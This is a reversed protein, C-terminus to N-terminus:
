HDTLPGDTPMHQRSIRVAAVATRHACILCTPAPPRPPSLLRRPLEAELAAVLFGEKGGRGASWSRCSLPQRQGGEHLCVRFPPSGCRTVCMRASSCRCAPAAQRWTPWTWQGARTCVSWRTSRWRKWCSHHPRRAHPRTPPPLHSLPSSAKPLRGPTHLCAIASNGSPSTISRCSQRSHALMSHPLQWLPIHHIQLDAQHTCARTPPLHSFPLQHRARNAHACQHVRARLFEYPQCLCTSRMIARGTKSHNLTDKYGYYACVYMVSVYACMCGHM